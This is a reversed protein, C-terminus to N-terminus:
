AKQKRKLKDKLPVKNKDEKDKSEKGEEKKIKGKEKKEQGKEKSKGEEKKGKKEKEGGQEKSRAGQVKKVGKKYVEKSVVNGEEDLLCVTRLKRMKREIVISDQYTSTSKFTRNKLSHDLEGKENFYESTGSLEGKDWQEICILTGDTRWHMWKGKKLGKRFDGKQALQKNSYFAECTGNLLEGSAGGQTSLIKQTKYWFYFRDKKYFLVGRKDEDLVTFQYQLGEQKLSKKLYFNKSPEQGYFSFINITLLIALLAKM